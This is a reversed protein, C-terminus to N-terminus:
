AIRKRVREILAKDGRPFYLFNNIYVGGPVQLNGPDTDETRLTGVPHLQRDKLYFGDYDLASFWGALRQPAGTNHRDESEVLVVPRNNTLTARGGELVAEEHGEVDIKIFSIDTLAFSDLTRTQVPRTEITDRRDVMSLPNIREITAVGSNEAVFRFEASGPADSLAASELRVRDDLFQRLRPWLDINPEFAVVQRSYKRMAYAYIGANAGIDVSIKDAQCFLPILWYEPEFHRKRLRRNYEEWLVPYRRGIYSALSHKLADTRM